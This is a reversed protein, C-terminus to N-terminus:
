LVSNQFFSLEEFGIRYALRHYCIALAATWSQFNSLKQAIRAMAIKYCKLIIKASFVYIHLINRQPTGKIVVEVFTSYTVVWM